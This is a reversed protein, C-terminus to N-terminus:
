ASNANKSIPNDMDYIDIFDVGKVKLVFNPMIISKFSIIDESQKGGHFTVIYRIRPQKDKFFQYHELIYPRRGFQKEFAAIFNWDMIYFESPLYFALIPSMDPSYVSENAALKPRLFIAAAKPAYSSLGNFERNECTNKDIICVLPNSRMFGASQYLTAVSLVIYLVIFGYFCYEKRKIKLLSFISYSEKSLSLGM